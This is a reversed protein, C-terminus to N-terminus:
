VIKRCHGGIVVEGRECKLKAEIVGNTILKIDEDDEISATSNICDCFVPSIILFVLFVPLLLFKM